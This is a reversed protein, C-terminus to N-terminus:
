YPTKDIIDVKGCEAQVQFEINDFGLTVCSLEVWLLQLLLKTPHSETSM